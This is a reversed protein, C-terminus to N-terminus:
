EDNLRNKINEIINDGVEKAFDNYMYSTDTRSREEEVAETAVQLPFEKMSEIIAGQLQSSLRPDDFHVGKSELIEKIRNHEAM